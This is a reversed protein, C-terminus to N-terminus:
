FDDEEQGRQLKALQEQTVTWKETDLLRTAILDQEGALYIGSIIFLDAVLEDMSKTHNVGRQILRDQELIQQIKDKLMMERFVQYSWIGDKALQEIHDNGGKNLTM